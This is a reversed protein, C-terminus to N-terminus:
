FHMHFGLNFIGKLSWCLIGRVSWHGLRFNGKLSWDSLEEKLGLQFNREPVVVFTENKEIKGRGKLHAKILM